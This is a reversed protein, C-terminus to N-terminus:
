FYSVFIIKEPTLRIQVFWGVLRGVITGFIFTACKYFSILNNKM